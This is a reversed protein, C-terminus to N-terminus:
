NLGWKLYGSGTVSVEVNGSMTYREYNNRGGRKARYMAIDAQTIQADANEGDDPYITIGISTTIQLKHSDLVFPEQIAALIKEAVKAADEVRAVEPLMLMFEDGGLRAVTDGKRLLGTLREAVAQLLQDGASHGLTDNIGKFHDLDLLMVALKQRKREAQAIALALRDNFLARNPLGTLPDHYAMHQLAEESRKRQIAYKIARSLLHSDVQGKVLYDQAGKRVAEVALTEDKLGSLVIIPLEPAQNQVKTFTNLGQSDPLSLDLLLADIDRKALHKLGTSLEEAWKLNFSVLKEESLMHRILNADGPNDEILLVKLHKDEM